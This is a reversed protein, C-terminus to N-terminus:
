SPETTFGAAQKHGGGGHRKAIESVDIGDVGRSRLSWVKKGDNRIFFTVSFPREEALKEGIESNLCTTNVCLVKYGDLEIESAVKVADDVLSDQYRLIAEGAAIMEADDAAIYEWSDWRPFEFPYSRIFASVAKSNPLKWRWLDRDETYDVLWPVEMAPHPFFHEWALRGGSKTMDFRFFVNTEENPNGTAGFAVLEAEATKHHDLVTLMSAKQRLGEMVPRKYSFDLIYVERGSVDPPPEGYNAPVYEANDGLKKHAVWAACFGDSCGAHYIVIPKTM